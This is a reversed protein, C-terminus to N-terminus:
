KSKGSGDAGDIVIYQANKRKVEEVIDFLNETVRM